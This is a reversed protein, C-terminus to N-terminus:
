DAFEFRAGVVRVGDHVVLCTHRGFSARSHVRALFMGDERRHGPLTLSVGEEAAMAALEGLTIGPSVRCCFERVREGGRHFVVTFGLVFVVLLVGMVLLARPLRGGNVARRM